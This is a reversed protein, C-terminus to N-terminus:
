GGPSQGVLCQLYSQHLKQDAVREEESDVLTNGAFDFPLAEQLVDVANM